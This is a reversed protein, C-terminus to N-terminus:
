TQFCIDVEIVSPCIFLSFTRPSCQVIFISIRKQYENCPLFCLFVLSLPASTHAWAIKSSKSVIRASRSSELGCPLNLIRISFPMGSMSPPSWVTNQFAKFLCTCPSWPTHFSIFFAHLKPQASLSALHVVITHVSKESAMRFTNLLKACPSGCQHRGQQISQYPPWPLCLFAPVVSPVTHFEETATFLFCGALAKWGFLIIVHKSVAAIVRLNPMAYAIGSHCSHKRNWYTWSSPSCSLVSLRLLLHIGSLALAWSTWMWHNTNSMM